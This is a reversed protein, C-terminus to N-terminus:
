SEEKEAQKEKVLKEIAEWQEKTVEQVSLRSNKFLSMGGIVADTKALVKLYKLTVAVPYITDLQVLVADWRCNEETSKPDYGQHKPNLATQDPEAKRTIVVKGVIAPVKCSSHYYFACDGTKMARMINRAQYNRVGDWEHESNPCDRLNEISFEDPESKLLFYSPKLSMKLVSFNSFLRQNVLCRKAQQSALFATTPWTNGFVRRVSLQLATVFVVPFYKARSAVM